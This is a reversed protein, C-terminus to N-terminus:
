QPTPDSKLTSTDWPTNTGSWSQFGVTLGSPYQIGEVADHYLQSIAADLQFPSAPSKGLTVTRYVASLADWAVTEYGYFLNMGREPDVLGSADNAATSRFIFENEVTGDRTIERARQYFYGDAENRIPQSVQYQIDGFMVSKLDSM